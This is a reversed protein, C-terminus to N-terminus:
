MAPTKAFSQIAAAEDAEVPFLHDLRTLRLVNVVKAVPNLLKLEGGHGQVSTFAGVLDGIGSSDIYNVDQLNLLIKRRNQHLLRRIIDGVSLAQVATTDRERLEPGLAEGLTISGKLDLITVDGNQRTACELM